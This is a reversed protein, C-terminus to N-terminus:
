TLVFNAMQIAIHETNVKELDYLLNKCKQKRSKTNNSKINRLENTVTDMYSYTNAAMIILDCRNILANMDPKFEIDKRHDMNFKNIIAPSHQTM